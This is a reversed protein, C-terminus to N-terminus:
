RESRGVARCSLERKPVKLREGFPRPQYWECKSEVVGGLRAEWRSWSPTPTTGTTDYFERYM